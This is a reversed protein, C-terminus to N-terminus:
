SRRKLDLITDIDIKTTLYDVKINQDTFNNITSQIVNDSSWNINIFPSVINRALLKESLGIMWYGGDNSPGLIADKSDLKSIGNILDLHCLDPLDTGIILIKRPMRKLKILQRKMREGLCGSGQLNFYNIKLNDCWKKSRSPGIGTIALSIELIEKKQLYEAVSLTHRFMYNNIKLSNNKGIDNSLRTKVRGYGPWKTM